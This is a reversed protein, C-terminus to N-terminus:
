EGAGPSRSVGGEAAGRGHRALSVLWPALLLTVLVLPWLRGRRLDYDALLSEWSAGAVYRGFLLEFAATLALMMAALLVLWM